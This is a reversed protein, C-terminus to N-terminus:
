GVIFGLKTVDKLVRQATFPTDFPGDPSIGAPNPNRIVGIVSAHRAEITIISLAAGLVKPDKINFAQGAYAHVGENELAFATDIFKKRSQNTGKFNFKPKAIAKSGLAKKLARVHANEDRTTAKLFAQTRADKIFSKKNNAATAGNYFAAELYELTLAYNLIGVDGKGFSAPPRGKGAAVALDPALLSMLAGGSMLAGAGLGAKMMMGRRTDGEGMSENAEHAMERIAGDVDVDELLLEKSM